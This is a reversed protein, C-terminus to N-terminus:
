HIKNWLWNKLMGSYNYCIYIKKVEADCKKGGVLLRETSLVLHNLRDRVTTRQKTYEDEPTDPFSADEHTIANDLLSLCVRLAAHLYCIQESPSLQSTLPPISVLQSGSVSNSPLSERSTQFLLLFLDCCSSILVWIAKSLYYNCVDKNPCSIQM